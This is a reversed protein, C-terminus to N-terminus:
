EYSMGGTLLRVFRARAVDEPLRMCDRLRSIRESTTKELGVWRDIVAPFYLRVETGLAIRDIPKVISKHNQNDPGLLLFKDALAQYLSREMDAYGDIKRKIPTAIDGLYAEPADHALATRAIIDSPHAEFEHVATEYCFLSHVLVSIPEITHGNYRYVRSLALAIDEADLTAPDPNFIDVDHRATSIVAPPNVVDIM